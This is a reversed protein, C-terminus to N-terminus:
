DSIVLPLLVLPQISLPHRLIAVISTFSVRGFGFALLFADQMRSAEVVLSDLSAIFSLALCLSVITPSVTAKPSSATAPMSFGLTIEIIALIVLTAEDLTVPM